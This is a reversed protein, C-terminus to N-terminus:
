VPMHDLVLNEMLEIHKNRINLAPFTFYFSGGTDIFLKRYEKGVEDITELCDASFGPCMVALSVQGEQAIQLVKERTYPGIWEEATVRSQYSECIHIGLGSLKEELMRTTAQCQQYYPDGAEVYSKPIGHYSLLVQKFKHELASEHIQEALASLYLPHNFYHEVFHYEGRFDLQKLAKEVREKVPLTITASYQPFLPLVVLTDIQKELLETMGNLISPQGYTMAPKVYFRESRNQLRQQLAEAQAYLISRIPSDQQWIGQYLQTVAKLRKPVILFYVLLFRFLWPLHIVHRDMLFERLYARVAPKEPKDPTGLNVLLVGVTKM